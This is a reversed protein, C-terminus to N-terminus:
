TGFSFLAPPVCPIETVSPLLPMKKLSELGGFIRPFYTYMFFGTSPCIPIRAPMKKLQIADKMLTIRKKYAEEAEPSVFPVGTGSVWTEFRAEQKEDADQAVEIWRKKM